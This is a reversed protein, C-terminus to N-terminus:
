VATKRATILFVPYDGNEKCIIHATRTTIDSYGRESLERSLGARDFGYHIFEHHDQHFSGDESDLDALAVWGGPNLLVTLRDLLRGTERIHHLAMASYILDFTESPSDTFLDLNRADINSIKEAEIRQQLQEIMGSSLDIAIIKGLMPFLERSIMGTGCGFDMAYMTKTLPITERIAGAVARNMERRSSNDDWDVAKSDFPNM